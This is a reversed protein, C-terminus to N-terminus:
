GEHSSEGARETKSGGTGRTEPPPPFLIESLRDWNVPQFYPKGDDDLVDQDAAAQEREEKRYAERTSEQM